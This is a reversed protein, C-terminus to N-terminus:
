WIALITGAVLGAFSIVAVVMLRTNRRRWAYHREYMEAVSQKPDIPPIEITLLKFSCIMTVLMLMSLGLGIFSDYDTM